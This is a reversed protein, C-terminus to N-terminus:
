EAVPCLGAAAQPRVFLQRWYAISWEKVGTYVFLAWFNTGIILLCSFIMSYIMGYLMSHIIWLLQSASTLLRFCVFHNRMLCSGGILMNAIILLSDGTYQMNWAMVIVAAITLSVVAYKNQKEDIFCALLSRCCVFGLTIVPVILGEIMYLAMFLINALAYFGLTVRPSKFLGGGIFLANAIWGLIEAM